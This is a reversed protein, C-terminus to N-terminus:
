NPFSSSCADFECRFSIASANLLTYFAGLKIIKDKLRVFDENTFLKNGLFTLIIVYFDQGIKKLFSLVACAHLRPKKEISGSQSNVQM